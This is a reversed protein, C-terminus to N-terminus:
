SAGDPVAPPTASRRWRSRWAPVARITPGHPDCRRGVPRRGAPRRGGDGPGARRGSRRVGRRPSDFLDPRGRSEDGRGPGPRDLISSHRRRAADVEVRLSGALVTSGALVADGMRKRSAGELGRVSREDVIGEGGVVRGDAPVAEDAQVVVRDGPRLRDVSVLVEAGEPTILCTSSPRPLCEDLLRRRESTLELRLRDIGSSSSGLVDLRLLLVPREGPGHVRHGHVAGASRVSAQSDPALRVPVYSREHRGALGRQGADPGSRRLRGTAAIGVSVNALVFQTQTPEPLTAGWGGPDDLVREVLRILEPLSILSPNYEVLLSSTWWGVSTGSVGPVPELCRAVVRALAPDRRLAPHRLRLRGARDSLVECTTALRGHRHITFASERCLRPSRRCRSPLRGTGFRPPYGSWFDPWGARAPM